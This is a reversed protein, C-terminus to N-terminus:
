DTLEIKIVRERKKPVFVTLYGDQSLASDIDEEKASNPINFTRHFTRITSGGDSTSLEVRGKVTLVKDDQLVEIEGPVYAEVDMVLKYKGGSEKFCITESDPQLSSDRLKKFLKQHFTTPQPPPEKPETREKQRPKPSAYHGGLGRGPSIKEPSTQSDRRRQENPKTHAKTTVPAARPVSDAAATNGSSGRRRGGSTPGPSPARTSNTSRGPSPARTSNTSSLRRSPSARPGPSEVRPKPSDRTPTTARPTTKRPSRPSESAKRVLPPTSVPTKQKEQRSGWLDRMKGVNGSNVAGFGSHRKTSDPKPPNHRVYPPLQKDDTRTASTSGEHLRQAARATFTGSPTSAPSTSSSTTTGRAQRASPSTTRARISSFGGGMGAQSADRPKNPQDARTTRAGASRTAQRPARGAHEVPPVQPPSTAGSGGGSVGRKACGMVDGSGIEASKVSDQHLETTTDIVDCGEASHVQTPPSQSPVHASAGSGVVAGRGGRGERAQHGTHRPRSRHGQDSRDVPVTDSGSYEGVGPGSYDEFQEEKSYKGSDELGQGPTPINSDPSSRTNEINPQLNYSAGGSRRSSSSRHRSDSSLDNVTDSSGTPAQALRRTEEIVRHAKAIIDDVDADNTPSIPARTPPPSPSTQRHTPPRSPGAGGTYPDPPQSSLRACPLPRETSFGKEAGGLSYLLPHQSAAGSAEVGENTGTYTDSSTRPIRQTGVVGVVPATSACTDDTPLLAARFVTEGQGWEVPINYGGTSGETTPTATPTLLRTLFSDKLAEVPSGKRLSDILSGGPAVNLSTPRVPRPAAPFEQITEQPVDNIVSEQPTHLEQLLLSAPRHRHSTGSDVDPQLALSAPRPPPGRATTVGGGGGGASRWRPVDPVGDSLRFPAVQDQGLAEGHAGGGLWGARDDHADDRTTANSPHPPGGATDASRPPSRPPAYVSPPITPPRGETPPGVTPATGGVGAGVEQGGRSAEDPPTAVSTRRSKKNEASGSQNQGGDEASTMLRSEGLDSSLEQLRALVDQLTSSFNKWCDKFMDEEQHEQKKEIPIVRGIKPSENTSLDQKSQSNDQSELNMSSNNPSEEDHHRNMQKRYKPSDLKPSRQLPSGNNPSNENSSEQKPTKIDKNDDNCNNKLRENKNIEDCLENADKCIKINKEKIRKLVDTIKLDGNSYDNFKREEKKKDKSQQTEETVGKNLYSTNELKTSPNGDNLNTDVGDQYAMSYVWPPDKSSPEINEKETKIGDINKYTFSPLRRQKPENKNSAESIKSIPVEEQVEKSNSYSPNIKGENQAIGNCVNNKSDFNSSQSENVLKPSDLEGEIHIPINFERVEGESRRKENKKNMGHSDSRRRRDLDGKNEQQYSSAGLKEQEDLIDDKSSRRKGQDSGRKKEPKQQQDTSQKNRENVSKRRRNRREVIEDDDVISAQSSEEDKNKRRKDRKRGMDEERIIEINVEGNSERRNKSESRKSKDPSKSGKRQRDPSISSNKYEQTRKSPTPGLDPQTISHRKIGSRGSSADSSSDKEFTVPIVRVDSRKPITVTLVADNSLTSVVKEGDADPPLNFRRHLTKNSINSAKSSESDGDDLPPGGEELKGRVSVCGGSTRVTVEGGVFEHVDMVLKYHDGEDKFKTSQQTVNSRASRLTRYMNHYQSDRLRDRPSNFFGHNFRDVIRRVAHHYDDWADQFFPDDLFGGRRNVLLPRVRGATECVM